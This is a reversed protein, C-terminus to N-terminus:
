NQKNGYMKIFELRELGSFKDKEVSSSAYCSVCMECSCAVSRKKQGPKSYFWHQKSVVGAQSDGKFVRGDSGIYGESRLVM